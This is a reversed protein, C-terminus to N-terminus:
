LQIKIPYHASFTWNNSQDKVRILIYYDTSKWANEGEIPAPTMNNDNAAGVDISANFDYEDVNPFDHTHLMPIVKANAGGVDADAINDEARVLGIFMGALSVNDSVSGTITITQGNSFTQGDTPSSTVSIAPATEDVIQLVEFDEVEVETQKGQLDTVIFHFHYTGVEATVPIDVHKHFTTNYLNAFETYTSDFEFGHDHEHDHDHDEGEGAEHIEVAITSIKGEAVVEAEIHVDGGAYATHSNGLGLEFDGIEPAPIEDNKDCSFSFLTAGIALIVLPIKNIKM